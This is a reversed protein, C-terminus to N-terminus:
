GLDSRWAERIVPAVRLVAGAALGPVDRVLARGFAPLHTGAVALFRAQWAPDVTRDREVLCRIEELSFVPLAGANPPAVDRVRGTPWLYCTVSDSAAGSPTIM